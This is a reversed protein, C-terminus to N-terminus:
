AFGIRIQLVFLKERMNVPIDIIKLFFIEFSVSRFKQDRDALVHDGFFDFLKQSFCFRFAMPMDVFNPM